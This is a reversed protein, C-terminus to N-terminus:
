FHRWFLDDSGKRDFSLLKNIFSNGVELRSGVENPGVVSCLAPNWQIDIFVDLGSDVERECQRNKGNITLQRSSYNGLIACVCVPEYNMRKHDVLCFPRDLECEAPQSSPRGQSSVAIFYFNWARSTNM